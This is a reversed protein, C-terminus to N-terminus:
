MHAKWVYVVSEHLFQLGEGTSANQRSRHYEIVDNGHLHGVVGDIAEKVVATTFPTEDYKTNNLVRLGATKHFRSTTCIYPKRSSVRKDLISKFVCKYSGGTVSLQITLSLSAIPPSPGSM